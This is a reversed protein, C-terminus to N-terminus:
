RFLNYVAAIQEGSVEQPKKEHGDRIYLKDGYWAPQDGAKAEIMLVTHDMYTIPTLNTNVVTKLWEPLKSDRINRSIFLIYDDLSTGKLHAERELGVIGFSFFRPSTIKDLQEIRKTDQEKDSVGIFIYGKKGKGLNAMAAINQLIKDLNGKDLIRNKDDLNYLGQKFDYNAAETKSRRLYVEFDVAYSGSSRTPSDSHKFYNQILGKTLNINYVRNEIKVSSTMKIKSMLNSIAAFIQEYDFPEKSEKIILEYFTMFLTYFPEKVPNGVGARRSLRNRLFNKENSIAVAKIANKIQSLVTKIDKQLNYEGYKAIALEIKDSKDDDNKGYYSDFNQKSAAFPKGLAISLIIDALLQEDESDRLGSVNLIGQNCWFTDEAGVGYGLDISRSDISIEPMDTLPLEERSVDGRIESALYRVLGSFKTTVGAQRVEQPSLHKGNSNIRNFINEIETISTAQYITVALSYELFKACADSDLFTSAKADVPEFVGTQSLEYAFPHKTVDFYKDNVAFKNEIFSFIANLRQMGDIIEYVDEVEPTKSAGLLILPIPYNLLLSDILLAKEGKTWVLKRQYRRNVILKQTRYWRYLELVSIGKPTISM